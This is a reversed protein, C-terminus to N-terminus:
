WGGVEGIGLGWDGIGLGFDGIWFGGRRGLRGPIHLTPYGDRCDRGAPTGGATKRLAGPLKLDWGMDTMDAISRKRGSDIM